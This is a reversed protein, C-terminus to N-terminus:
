EHVELVLCSFDVLTIIQGAHFPATPACQHPRSSDLVVFYTPGYPDGPLTFSTSYAVPNLLILFSSDEISEGTATRGPLEGSIYMGLPRVGPDNWEQGTFERGWVDFWALDAPGGDRIPSGTFFGRHSFTPHTRRLAVAAATFAQLDHQWDQLDWDMWSISDDQCYANNNGQQTRGLEDGAVLMPTGASLLLTAMLSKIRRQRLEIIAPDDTEGEIGSNWCRNDNTGDRNGEGNAVNHKDNYSVLDRLTFGDHATLFNVSAAPGRGDFGFLDDSGALRRGVDAMGGQSRWLDRIVDRYKGNWEGWPPGFGGVQYGGPGVDWPEAIMKVKRLVPDNAIMASFSGLMNVGGDIDRALEPALDFRFGDVHFEQVWHRLSDGILRLPFLQAADFSNGCGTFDVYDRGADDLRYYIDNALGRFSLTPGCEDGEATHNYVVDLIVEIGASHLAKVMSKFETIQQGHDGAASYANHPALFGISNYGWYNVVGRGLLGTESVFQHVPLLEVASIGLSRLHEIAAPHALGAYTGRLSEPVQPHLQTFGKVHLEYIVTQSWPHLPPADAGWDFGDDAIVVSRPVYPSSDETNMNFDNAGWHGFVASNMTLDGCIARAYPDILLKNPNFRLGRWPQWPGDVRLGYETGAVVDPVFGHFVSADQ